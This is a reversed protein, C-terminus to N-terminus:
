PNDGNKAANCYKKEQFFTNKFINLCIEHIGSAHYSLYDACQMSSMRELVRISYVDRFSFWCIGSGRTIADMM